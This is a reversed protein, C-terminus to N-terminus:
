PDLGGGANNGGGGGGSGAGGSGAPPTGSGTPPPTTLTRGDAVSVTKGNWVEALDAPFPGTRRMAVLLVSVAGASAEPASLRLRVLALQRADVRRLGAGTLTAGDPALAAPVTSWTAGDGSHEITLVAGAFPDALGAVQVILDEVGLLGVPLAPTAIVAAASAGRTPVTDFTVALAFTSM